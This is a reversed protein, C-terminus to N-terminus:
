VGKIGTIEYSYSAVDSRNQGPGVCIHYQTSLSPPFLFEDIYM